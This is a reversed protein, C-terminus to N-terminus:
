CWIKFFANRHKKVQMTTSKSLKTYNMSWFWGACWFWIVLPLNPKPNETKLCLLTVWSMSLQSKFKINFFQESAKKWQCISSSNHPSCAPTQIHTPEALSAGGSDWTHCGECPSSLFPLHHCSHYLWSAWRYQGICLYFAYYLTVEEYRDRILFPFGM